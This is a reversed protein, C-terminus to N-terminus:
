VRDPIDLRKRTKRKHFPKHANESSAKFAYSASKLAYGLSKHRDVKDSKISKISSFGYEWEIGNAVRYYRKYEPIREVDGPIYSVIAHYHERGNEKGFDICAFWDFCTENLYRTVYKKRTEANTAELVEDNFTLSVLYLEFDLATMGEIYSHYRARKRKLDIFDSHVRTRKEEFDTYVVPFSYWVIKSLADNKSKDHDYKRRLRALKSHISVNYPAIRTEGKTHFITSSPSVEIINYCSHIM